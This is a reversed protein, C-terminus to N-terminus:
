EKNGLFERKLEQYLLRTEFFLMRCIGDKGMAKFARFREGTEPDVRGDFWSEKLRRQVESRPAYRPNCVTVLKHAYLHSRVIESGAWKKKVKESTASTDGSSEYSYSLGLFAQFKRLSLDHGRRRYPLGNVLFRDFPYVHILMLGMLDRYGFDKLIRTYPEFEPSTALSLIRDSTVALRDQLNVIDGALTRSFETIGTGATVKPFKRNQCSGIIHGLSPNVGKVGITEFDRRAIEPFERNLRMRLQNILTNCNSDLQEREYVKERIAEIGEHDYKQFFPPNGREDRNAKDFYLLAITMADSRDDKNKFGYHRRSYKVQAHSVWHIAIGLRKANDFWFASYWGGTPEM